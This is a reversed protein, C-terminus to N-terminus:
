HKERHETYESKELLQEVVREMQMFRSGKVLLVTQPNLLLKVSASLSEVNEFHHAGDGFAIATERSLDGLLFLTTINAAKAYHGVEAHLSKAEDGLEGMDGLVLIQKERRAALVDIAAKISDPNANYTDDIVLSGNIGPKQQLRSKAGKFNALGEAIKELSIGMSLAAATAALANRVNHEGMASLLLNINGKPTRLQIDIYNSNLSFRASVDASETLGFTIVEHRCALKKWLPAFTDDANIVAVGGEALGEFIEGKALAIAELSGLNAIHAAGANNVLAVTPRGIRTLYSIEGTHNMGMEIVAYRHTTKLQLLTLPLGIDNNFNGKTALVEEASSAAVLINALMEKVSTKGSSGTIAAVPIDFKNRWHAALEGLALRTDKVLVGAALKRNTESVMVAAAGQELAKEAFDHGDFNKGRLAVFLQDKILARSDIGVSSFTANRGILLGQTAAVVESLTMM